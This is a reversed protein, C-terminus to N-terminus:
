RYNIRNFHFLLGFLKKFFSKDSPNSKKFAPIFLFYKLFRFNFLIFFNNSTKVTAAKKVAQLPLEELVSVFEVSEVVTVVGAVVSVVVVAVEVSVVFVLASVV